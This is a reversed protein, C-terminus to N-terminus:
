HKKTKAQKLMPVPWVLILRFMRPLLMLCGEPVTRIAGDYDKLNEYSRALGLRAQLDGQAFM